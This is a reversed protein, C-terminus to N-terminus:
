TAGAPALAPSAVRPLQAFCFLALAGILVAAIGLAQYGAFKVLTGGLVPGIAAGSLMM